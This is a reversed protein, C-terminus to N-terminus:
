PPEHESRRGDSKRREHTGPRACPLWRTFLACGSMEFSGRGINAGHELTPSTDWFRRTLAIGVDCAPNLLVALLIGNLAMAAM